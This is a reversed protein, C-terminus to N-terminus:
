LGFIFFVTGIGSGSFVIIKEYILVNKLFLLLM